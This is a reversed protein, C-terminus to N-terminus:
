LVRTYIVDFGRRQRTLQSTKTKKWAGFIGSFGKLM